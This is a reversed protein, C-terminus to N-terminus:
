RCWDYSMAPQALGMDLLAQGVDRGDEGYLVALHRGYGGAGYGIICLEGPMMSRVVGTAQAGLRAESRCDPRWTEPADFPADGARTLRANEGPLRVTDGDIIMAATIAIITLCTM